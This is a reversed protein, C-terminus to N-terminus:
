SGKKTDGDEESVTPQAESSADDAETESDEIADDEGEEDTDIGRDLLVDSIHNALATYGYSDAIRYAEMLIENEADDATKPTTTM